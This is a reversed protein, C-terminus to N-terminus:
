KGRRHNIAADIMAWVILGAAEVFLTAFVGAVFPNILM